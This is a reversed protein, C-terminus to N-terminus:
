HPIFEKPSPGSNVKRDRLKGFHAEALDELLEKAEKTTKVHKKGMLLERATVGKPHKKRIWQLIERQEKEDEEEELCGYFRRAEHSFWEAIQIAAEADEVTIPRRADGKPNELVQRTVSLVLAIRACQANLKYWAGAVPGELEQAARRSYNKYNLLIQKADVDQKIVFSMPDGAPDMSPKLGYLRKGLNKMEKVLKADVLHEEGDDDVIEFPPVCILLRQALGNQTTDKNFLVEQAVEPQITGTLSLTCDVRETHADDQSRDVVECQGNHLTLWSEADAGRRYQNFSKVWGALEDKVYILGKWNAALRRNLAELTINQVLFQKPTPAFPKPGEKDQQWEALKEAYRAWQERNRRSLNRQVSQMLLQAAGVCPSKASGM